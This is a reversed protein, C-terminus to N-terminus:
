SGLNQRSLFEEALEEYAKGLRSNLSVLSKQEKTSNPAENLRPIRAKFVAQGYNEELFAAAEKTLKTRECMTLVFGEVSLHPNLYKTTKRMSQVLEPIAELAFPQAQVPILVSDAASLANVLLFALSPLCDILIYEYEEFAPNRLVFSLTKESSPIDDLIKHASALERSYPIYEIQESSARIASEFDIEKDHAEADLLELLTPLGDPVFGIYRTLDGQPDIDVALVKKGKKALAVALNLTTTTKGVGGKQNAVAIIKSM